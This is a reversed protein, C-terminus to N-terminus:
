VKIRFPCRCRGGEGPVCGGVWKGPLPVRKARAQRDRGPDPGPGPGACAWARDPRPGPGARVRSPGARARGPARVRARGPGRAASQAPGARGARGACGAGFASARGVRVAVSWGKARGPGTGRDSGRGGRPYRRPYGSAGLGRTNPDGPIPLPDPWAGPWARARGAWGGLTGM